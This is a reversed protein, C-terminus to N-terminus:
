KPDELQFQYLLDSYYRSSLFTQPSIEILNRLFHDHLTQHTNLNCDLGIVQGIDDNLVKAVTVGKSTAFVIYILDTNLQDTCSINNKARSIKSEISVTPSEPYKEYRSKIPVPILRGKCFVEFNKISVIEYNTHQDRLMFQYDKLKLIEQINLQRKVVKLYNRKTNYSYLLKNQDNPTYDSGNCVLYINSDKEPLQVSWLNKLITIKRILKMKKTLIALHPHKKQIRKQVQRDLLAILQRAKRHNHLSMVSQQLFNQLLKNQIIIDKFENSIVLPQITEVM